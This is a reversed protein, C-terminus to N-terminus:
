NKAVVKYIEADDGFGQQFALAEGEDDTSYLVEAEPLLRAIREIVEALQEGRVRNYSDRYAEAAIRELYMAEDVGGANVVWVSFEESHRM